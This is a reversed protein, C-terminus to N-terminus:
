PSASGAKNLVSVTTRDRSRSVTQLHFGLGGVGSDVRLQSHIMSSHTGDDDHQGLQGSHGQPQAWTNAQGSERCIKPLRSQRRHESDPRIRFHLNDMQLREETQLCKEM